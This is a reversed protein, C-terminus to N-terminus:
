PTEQLFDGTTANLSRLWAPTLPTHTKAFTARKLRVVDKPLTYEAFRARRKKHHATEIRRKM